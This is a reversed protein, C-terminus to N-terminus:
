NLFLPLWELIAAAAQQLLGIAALCYPKSCSFPLFLPFLMWKHIALKKLNMVAFKLKVWTSVATLGRYPTYRMAHKEKADAFVREITQSRLAYTAKGIPSHRVDEARETHEHERLDSLANPCLRLLLEEAGAEIEDKRLIPILYNSLRWYPREPLEKLHSCEGACFEMGAKMNIWLEVYLPYSALGDATCIEPMVVIDALANYKDYRWFSMNGISCNAASLTLAGGDLDFPLDLGGSQISQNLARFIIRKCHKLIYEKMSQIQPVLVTKTNKKARVSTAEHPEDQLPVFPGPVRGHVANESFGFRHNVDNM